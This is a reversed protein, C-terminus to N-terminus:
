RIKKLIKQGRSSLAPTKNKELDFHIQTRLERALWEYKMTFNFLIDYANCRVAIPCDVAALVQFTKELLGEEQEDSLLTTTKSSTKTLEIILKTISRLVSWNNSSTYLDIIQGRYQHLLAPSHLLLHELAWAARFAARPVETSASIFILEDVSISELVATKFDSASYIYLAESITNFRIKDM